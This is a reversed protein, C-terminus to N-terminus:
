ASTLTEASRLMELAPEREAVTTRAQSRGPAMDDGKANISLNWIGSAIDDVDDLRSDNGKTPRWLLALQAVARELQALLEPTGAFAVLGGPEKAHSSLDEFISKIARISVDLERPDTADTTDELRRKRTRNGSGQGGPGSLLEPPPGASDVSPFLRRSGESDNGLM